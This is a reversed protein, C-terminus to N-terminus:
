GDRWVEQMRGFNYISRHPVFNKVHPWVTLYDLRWGLIPRAADEELKKQIAWVQALRKKADLEQSQADIMKMVQEDCFPPKKLNMIVNDTVNANFPM